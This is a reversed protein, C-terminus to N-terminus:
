KFEIINAKMHQNDPFIAVQQGQTLGSIIETQSAGKRKIAIRTKIAQGSAPDFRYILPQSQHYFIAASPVQLAQGTSSLTLGIELSQGRKLTSSQGTTPVLKARFKGNEVVSSVSQITLPFEGDAAYATVPTDPGIKDLYFESFEAELYYSSLNDIIAIKEGPKIQQGPQLDLWSIVGAIPASLVLQDLGGKILASLSLLEQISKDIEKLQLPLMADLAQNHQQLLTNVRQWHQLDDILKEYRAKEVFSKEYLPKLRNIDKKHHTINIVSKQLDVKTDRSNNELQMRMNRLNNIQETASAIRSTVDLVLEDNALRAIVTGKNVPVSSLKEVSVVKGGREASLIVSENPVASARAVLRDKYADCKVEHFTVGALPHVQPKDTTWLHYVLWGLATFGALSVLSIMRAYRHLATKKDLPIDM